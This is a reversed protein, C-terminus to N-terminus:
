LRKEKLMSCLQFNFKSFHDLSLDLAYQKAENLNELAQEYNNSLIYGFARNSFYMYWFDNFEKQSMDSNADSKSISGSEIASNKSANKDRKL